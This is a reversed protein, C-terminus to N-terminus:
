IGCAVRRSHRKQTLIAFRARPSKGQVIHAHLRLLLLGSSYRPESGGQWRQVTSIPVNLADAVATRGYGARRLDMLVEPWNVRDDM